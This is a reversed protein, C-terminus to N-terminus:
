AAARLTFDVRVADYPFIVRGSAVRDLVGALLLAQVDAYVAKVDRDVWRIHYQRM